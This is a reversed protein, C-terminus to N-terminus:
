EKVEIKKFEKGQCHPCRAPATKIGTWELECQSCKFAIGNAKTLPEERLQFDRYSM